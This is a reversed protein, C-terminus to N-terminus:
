PAETPTLKSRFEHRLAISKMIDAIPQNATAAATLAAILPEDGAVENRAFAFRFYNRAFCSDVKHSEVLYRTVDAAGRSARDDAPLVQPVSSTIVDGEGIVNGFRDFLRQSTRVRGLADFNETSFGLPNILTSHCGACASGQGQTLNEVVQRTTFTPSLDIRAAAAAPPPPPINDCLLGMRIRVGKMIPRTNASGTALFAARTILGARTPEPFTPPEDTGNWVPVNYLAAVDPTRAFSQRNTLLDSVTGRHGTVWSAADVVDAFMNARLTPKPSDAGAFGDFVPDGVRTDLRDLEDLRLWERFFADSAARGRPSTSLRDVERAYVDDKLLDGNRAAAFLQEDPMTEWFHYSLRAALEYPGVLRDPGVTGGAREVLYLVDPASIMLAVIDALANPSLPAGALPKQYFAVDDDTIARRLVREGFSRIFTNICAADNAPDADSACAGFVATIRAASNTFQRGLEDGIAYQIDAHTQQLDQDLRHYGGRHEGNYSVLRDDPLRALVPTITTRVADSEAPIAITILENITNSLEVKSLRRLPLSVSATNAAGPSGPGNPGGGQPGDGDLVGVCAAFLPATLLVALKNM